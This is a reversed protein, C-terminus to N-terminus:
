ILDREGLIVDLFVFNIMTSSNKKHRGNVNEISFLIIKSSIFNSMLLHVVIHDNECM